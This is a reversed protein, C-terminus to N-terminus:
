GVRSAAYSVRAISNGLLAGLGALAGQKLFDRRKIGYNKPSM